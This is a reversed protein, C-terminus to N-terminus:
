SHVGQRVILLPPWGSRAQRKTADQIILLGHWYINPLQQTVELAQGGGNSSKESLPNKIIVPRYGPVEVDMMLMPILLRFMSKSQGRLEQIGLLLYM